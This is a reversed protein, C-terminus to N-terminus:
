QIEGNKLTSPANADEDVFSGSYASEAGTSSNFDYRGLTITKANADTKATDTYIKGVPM